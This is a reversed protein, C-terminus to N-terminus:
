VLTVCTRIQMISMKSYRLVMHLFASCLKEIIMVVQNRLLNLSRYNKLFLFSVMLGRVLYCDKQCTHTATTACAGGHAMVQTTIAGPPTCYAITIFSADLVIQKSETATSFNRRPYRLASDRLRFQFNLWKCSGSAQEVFYSIGCWCLVVTGTHCLDIHQRWADDDDAVPAAVLLPFIVQKRGELRRAPFSIRVIKAGRSGANKLFSLSPHGTNATVRHGKQSAESRSKM